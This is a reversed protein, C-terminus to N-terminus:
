EGDCAAPDYRDVHEGVGVPETSQVQVQDRVSADDRSRTGNPSRDATVRPQPGRRARNARPEDREVSHGSPLPLDLTWTVAQTAPAVTMVGSAIRGAPRTM